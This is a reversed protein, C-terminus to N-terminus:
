GIDTMHIYKSMSNRKSAEFRNRNIFVPLVNMVFVHGNLICINESQDQKKEFCIASATRLHGWLIHNLAFLYLSTCELKEINTTRRESIVFDMRKEQILNM